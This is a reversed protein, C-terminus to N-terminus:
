GMRPLSSRAKRRSAGSCSGPELEQGPAQAAEVPEPGLQAQVVVPGEAM